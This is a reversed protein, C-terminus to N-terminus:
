LFLIPIGATNKKVESNLVNETDKLLIHDLSLICYHIATNKLRSEINEKDKCM